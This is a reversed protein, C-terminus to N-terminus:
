GNPEKPPGIKGSPLEQAARAARIEALFGQAAPSMVEGPLAAVVIEAARLTAVDPAVDLDLLGTEQAYPSGGGLECRGTNIIGGRLLVCRGWFTLEILEPAPSGLNQWIWLDTPGLGQLWDLDVRSSRIRRMSAGTKTLQEDSPLRPVRSGARLGPRSGGREPV